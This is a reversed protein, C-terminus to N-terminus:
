ISSVVQVCAAVAAAKAINTGAKHNPSSMALHPVLQLLHCFLGVERIIDRVKQRFEIHERSKKAVMESAHYIGCHGTGFAGRAGVSPVPWESVLKLM